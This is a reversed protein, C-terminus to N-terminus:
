DGGRSIRLGLPPRAPRIPEHARIRKNAERDAARAQGICRACRRWGTDAGFPVGALECVARWETDTVPKGCTRCAHDTSRITAKLQGLAQAEIDRWDGSPGGYLSM